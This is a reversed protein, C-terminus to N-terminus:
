CVLHEPTEHARLHTYSVPTLAVRSFHHTFPLPRPKPPVKPPTHSHVIPLEICFLAPHQRRQARDPKLWRLDRALKSPVPARHRPFQPAVARGVISAVTRRSRMLPRMRPTVTRPAVALKRSGLPHLDFREQLLLPTRLLDGPMQRQRPFQRNAVLGDVPVDPPIELGTAGQVQVQPAGALLAALAVPAVVAPAAQSPLPQDALSRGTHLRATPRAMPLDVGHHTFAESFAAVADQRQDLALAAVHQDSFQFRPGGGFGVPHQQFKQGPVWSSQTRDGRVVSGLEM